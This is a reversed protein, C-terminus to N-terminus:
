SILIDVLNKYSINNSDDRIFMYYLTIDSNPNKIIYNIIPEGFITTLLSQLKKVHYTNKSSQDFNSLALYLKTILKYIDAAPIFPKFSEEYVFIKSDYEVNSLGQDIIIAKFDDEVKFFDTSSLQYTYNIPKNSIMINSPHLDFHTYEGSNNLSSLSSFVQILVKNIFDWKNEESLQIFKISMIYQSLTRGEIFEYIGYLKLNKLRLEQNLQEISYDKINIIDDSCLKIKEPSIKSMSKQYTYEKEKPSIMSRYPIRGYPKMSFGSKPPKCLIYSFLLPFNPNNKILIEPNIRTQNIFIENIDEIHSKNEKVIVTLPIKEKEEIENIDKIDKMDDINIDFTKITGYQGSALKKQNHLFRDNFVPTDIICNIFNNIHDKYNLCLSKDKPKKPDENDQFLYSLRQITDFRNIVFHDM